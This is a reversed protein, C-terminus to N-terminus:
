VEAITLLFGHIVCKKQVTLKVQAKSIRKNARFAIAQQNWNRAPDEDQSAIDTDSVAIETPQLAITKKFSDIEIVAEQQQTQSYFIKCRKLLYQNRAPIAKTAIKAEVPIGNDDSFPDKIYIINDIAIFTKSIGDSEVCKVPKPYEFISWKGNEINYQINYIYSKRNNALIVWLQRDSEVWKLEAHDVIDIFSSLENWIKNDFDRISLEDYGATPIINKLGTKGLFIIRDGLQYASKRSICTDGFGIQQVYWDPYFNVIRYIKNNDKFVVIDKQFIVANTINGGEKYGVAIEVADIDNGTVNWNTEDGVGSFTIYDYGERAVMVRGNTVGVIDAQIGLDTVYELDVEQLNGGSAVLFKDNWITIDPIKNGALSGMKKLGDAETYIFIDSTTTVLLANLAPLYHMATIDDPLELLKRLGGRTKLAGTKTDYEFNTLISLENQAINEAIDSNLGGSFENFFIDIQNHKASLRM